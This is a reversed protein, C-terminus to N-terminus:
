IQIHRTLSPLEANQRLHCYSCTNRNGSLLMQLQQETLNTRDMRERKNREEQQKEYEIMQRYDEERQKAELEDQRKNKKENFELEHM